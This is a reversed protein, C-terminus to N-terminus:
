KKIIAKLEEAKLKGLETRPILSVREAHTIKEYPRCQQNFIQVLSSLQDPAVAEQAVLVLKFGERESEIALLAIQLPNLQMQLALSELRDRLEPLSVGEGLIKVYEYRRGKLQLYVDSRKTFIEAADETRYWIDPAQQQVQILGRREQAFATLLSDCRIALVDDIIQIEVGPMVRFLDSDERVAIMSCTETMGYTEIVPWGLENLGHRLETSLAGAGVFIKKISDPCHVGAQVIDFVQAPVLSMFAIGNETLWDALGNVNWDRVFVKAGSLHARAYVSLGAVHFDPLVLGWHDAKDPHFFNQFRRAANLVAEVSLAVLKASQEAERASGSTSIFFHGSQGLRDELNKQLRVLVAQEPSTLRPNLLLQNPGSLEFQM